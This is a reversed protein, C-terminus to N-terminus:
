KRMPALWLSWRFETPHDNQWQLGTVVQTATEGRDTGFIRDWVSLSFGYNSDHQERQVSHPIRHVDPTVIFCRLAREFNDPLSINAHNRLATGNLVVEFLIVAWAIPGLLYVMGIELVMSLSIEVPHLRIATSVDFDVNAHHVRHLTWFIPVKHTILHPGWIAFDLILLSLLVEMWLPWDLVSFLGWGLEAADLAAGLVLFPLALSMLRLIIKKIITISFHTIWRAKVPRNLSVKPAMLEVVAFVAFLGLFVCICILVEQEM